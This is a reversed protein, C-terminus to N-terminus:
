RGVLALQVLILAGATNGSGKENGFARWTAQEFIQIEIRPKTRKPAFM